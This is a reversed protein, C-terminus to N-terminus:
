LTDGYFGNTDRQTIYRGNDGKGCFKGIGAYPLRPPVDAACGKDHAAARSHFLAHPFVIFYRKSKSDSQKDAQENCLAERGVGKGVAVVTLAWGVGVWVAVGAGVTVAVGGGGVSVV